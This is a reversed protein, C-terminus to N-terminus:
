KKQGLSLFHGKLFFTSCKLSYYFYPLSDGQISGGQRLGKQSPQQQQQTLASANKQALRYWQQRHTRERAPNAPLVGRGGDGGSKSLRSRCRYKARRFATAAAKERTARRAVRDKISARTQTRPYVFRSYRCFFDGWFHLSSVLMDDDPEFQFGQLFGSVRSFVPIILPNILFYIAAANSAFVVLVVVVTM